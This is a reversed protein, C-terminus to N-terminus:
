QAFAPLRSALGIRACAYPGGGRTLDAAGDARSQGEAGSDVHAVCGSSDLVTSQLPQSQRKLTLSAADSAGTSGTTSALEPDKSTLDFCTGCVCGSTSPAQPRPPRGPSIGCSSLLEREDSLRRNHSIRGYIALDDKLQTRLLSMYRSCACSVVLNRKKEPIGRLREKLLQPVRQDAPYDLAQKTAFFLKRTPSSLLMGYGRDFYWDDMSASVTNRLAMDAGVAVSSRLKGSIEWLAAYAELRRDALKVRLQRRYNHSFWIGIGTLIVTAAAIVLGAITNSM